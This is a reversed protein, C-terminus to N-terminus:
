VVSKRDAIAVIKHGPIGAYDDLNKVEPLWGDEKTKVRYYVDFPTDDYDPGSGGPTSGGSATGGIFHLIGDWPYDYYEHIYAEVGTQDGEVGLSLSKIGARVILSDMQECNAGLVPITNQLIGRLIILM